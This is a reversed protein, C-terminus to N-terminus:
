YVGCMGDISVEEVLLEDEILAVGRDDAEPASVADDQSSVDTTGASPTTATPAM